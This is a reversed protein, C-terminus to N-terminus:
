GMDAQKAKDAFRTYKELWTLEVTGTSGARHKAIMVECVGPKTSSEQNYYDDRYLFLVIDADQEISGSERLDALMPHHDNRQEPSRSLQSLVLVPCDLERALLKLQRSLTSIEQQRSEQKGSATMLQLYDIMVMDLGKEAKMRRCKNKIEMMSIGPTDDIFIKAEVLKDMAQNLNEWDMENLEGTRLKSSEVRSEMSLLRSGLQEKSMELSFIAISAKGKLAAQQAVNLAFATKGMAPRAALIILDSRQFGNLYDDLDKFGSPVGTVEGAHKAAEDIMRLNESLVDELATMEKRERSQSIAFVGTEAYDLVKDADTEGSYCKEVVEDSNKILKRLISKEAVIKAYDGANATSPVATSLGAIYARGGAIELANRKRLEETVTLYDIAQNKYHMESIATYIERHMPNYFDIPKVIELVDLLADKSLMAAGLVSKEAEESHPPIREQM